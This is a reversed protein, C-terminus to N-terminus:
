FAGANWAGSAPRPVGAINACLAGLGPNPQGSCVGTLNTGAGLAPSNSQPTGNSSVLANATTRSHSDGGICSQWRSFQSFSYTTNKCQFANGGSAAYMNYDAIMGGFPLGASGNSIEQRCGSILTNQVTAAPTTQDNFSFCADSAKGLLTNNYAYISGSALTWYADDPSGSQSTEQVNNFLYIPTAPTACATGSATGEVFIQATDNGGAGVNGGWINNYLYLGGGIDAPTPTGSSYCHFGDHHYNDAAGTDWAAYDHIANDYFYFPGLGPGGADDYFALAIGHDTNAINNGAFRVNADAARRNEDVMVCWHAYDMTNDLVTLNSGSVEMCGTNSAGTGTDSQSTRVYMNQITLYEITCGTCPDATIGTDGVNDALGTGNATNQIVGTGGGDITVYSRNSMSLCSGTCAPQSLSAGPEFYITIPSGPLGNGLVSLDSSITGCLHVVDGPAIRGAGSGWSSSTNFWTAPHANACSSGNAIGAGSQSVYVAPGSPPPVGLGASAGQGILGIGSPGAPPTVPPAVPAPGGAPPRPPTHVTGNRVRTRADRALQKPSRPKSFIRVSAVSGTFFERHVHDGGIQLAGESRRLAGKVAVRAALRSGIYLRLRSGNYTAALFSWRRKRLRSNARAKVSRRGIQAYAYPKGDVLGLGYPFAGRSRTKAIIMAQGPAFTSPRVWAELTMGSTLNLGRTAPATAFSHHGTFVVAGGHNGGRTLRANILTVVPGHRRADAITTGTGGRGGGFGWAAVLGADAHHVPSRHPQSPAVPGRAFTAAPGVSLAGLAIVGALLFGRPRFRPRWPGLQSLRTWSLWCRHDISM